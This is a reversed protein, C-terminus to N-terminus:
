VALRSNAPFHSTNPAYSAYIGASLSSHQGWVQSYTIEKAKIYIYVHQFQPWKPGTQHAPQRIPPPLSPCQGRAKIFPHPSGNVYRSGSLYPTFLSWRTVPQARGSDKSFRQFEASAQLALRKVGSLVGGHRLIAGCHRQRM